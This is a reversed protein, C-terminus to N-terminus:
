TVGGQFKRCRRAEIILMKGEWQGDEVGARGGKPGAETLQMKGCMAGVPGDARLVARGAHPGGM